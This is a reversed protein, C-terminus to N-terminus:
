RRKALGWLQNMGDRTTNRERILDEAAKEVVDPLAERLAEVAQAAVNLTGLVPERANHLLVFRENHVKAPRSGGSVLSALEEELRGIRATAVPLRERVQIYRRQLLDPDEGGSDPVLGDLKAKALRDPIGELDHTLAHREARLRALENVLDDYRELTEDAEERLREAEALADRVIEEVGARVHQVLDDTTPTQRVEAEM